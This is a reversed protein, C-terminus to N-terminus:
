SPAEGVASGRNIKVSATGDFVISNKCSLNM